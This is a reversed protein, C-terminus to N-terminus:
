ITKKHYNKALEIEKVGVNEMLFVTDMQGIPVIKELKLLEM